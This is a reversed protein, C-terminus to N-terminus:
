RWCFCRITLGVDASFFEVVRFVSLNQAMRFSSAKAESHASMAPLHLRDRMAIPLIELGELFAVAAPLM